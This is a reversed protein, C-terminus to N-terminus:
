KCAKQRTIESVSEADINNWEGSQSAHVLRGIGKPKSYFKIFLFRQKNKSCQFEIMNIFSHYTFKKGANNATLPSKLDVLSVIRAIDRDKIISDQDIYFTADESDQLYEMKSCALKKIEDAVSQPGIPIWETDKKLDVVVGNGMNKDFYRQSLSRQRNTICDHEELQVLSKVVFTKGNNEALIPKNMVAHLPDVVDIM